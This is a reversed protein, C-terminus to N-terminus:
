VHTKPSHVGSWGFERAHKPRPLGSGGRTGNSLHRWPSAMAFGSETKAVNFRIWGRRKVNLMSKTRTPRFYRLDSDFREKPTGAHVSTQPAVEGGGSVLCIKGSIRRQSDTTIRECFWVICGGGQVQSPLPMDVNMKRDVNAAM